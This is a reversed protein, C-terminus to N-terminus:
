LRDRETDGEGLEDLRERMKKVLLQVVDSIAEKAGTILSVRDQTGPFMENNKSMMINTGSTRRPFTIM